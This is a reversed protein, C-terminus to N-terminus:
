SADRADYQIKSSVLPKRKPWRLHPMVLGREAPVLTESQGSAEAGELGVGDELARRVMRLEAAPQTEEPTLFLRAGLLALGIKRQSSWVSLPVASVLGLWVPALWWFFNPAVIWVAAAWAFGIVTQWALRGLAEAWGLGRDARTQTEWAVSRGLLAGVVFLTQFLMMVPALLTSGVIEGLWSACLAVTGGFARRTARHFLALTLGLLKPLFLAALTMCLLLDIQFDTAVPWNPFLNFGPRFYVTGILAHQMADATSLLLFALWIPSTVYSLIGIGLQLRGMTKLVPMRLLRSHQINGQCWRRDRKLYDVLNAPMEEYSGAIEPMFWVRYGGASMLASEVFDHSLIQGGLPAKGPLLPLGCYKAFAATRVIANHGYYNSDGGTWFAFGHGLMPGYLRSAFQAIRAFPTERNTPMPLTQILGADPHAEMLRALAVLTSASMVSDADLVVMHAYAGGWRKVFDEINGAKHGTNEARRRYYISPGSPHKQRLLEAMAQEAEGARADRTDSLIFFDFHAAAGSTRFGALTAELGAAVSALNENYIPMVVATRTALPWDGALTPAIPDGGALRVLFGFVASWFNVALWGFNLTFLVLIACGVADLGNAAIVQSMLSAATATSGTVLILMGARRLALNFRYAPAEYM